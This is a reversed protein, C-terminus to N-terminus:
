RGEEGGILERLYADSKALRRLEKQAYFIRSRTASVSAGTMQAIERPEVGELAWLIFATRKKESLKGLALRVRRLQEAAVVEEEPVKRRLDGSTSLEEELPVDVKRRRWASPRRARRAVRVTIGGIFTRLASDGRFGPLAHCFEVFVTQVLDDLDNRPGLLRILLRRVRPEERRAIAELASSDGRKAAAVLAGEDVSAPSLRWVPGLTTDPLSLM